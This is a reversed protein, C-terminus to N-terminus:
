ANFVLADINDAVSVRLKAVLRPGAEAPSCQRPDVVAERRYSLCHWVLRGHDFCVNGAQAPEGACQQAAIPLAGVIEHLVAELGGKRAPVQTPGLTIQATPEVRDKVISEQSILM